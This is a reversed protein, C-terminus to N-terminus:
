SSSLRRRVWGEPVFAAAFILLQSVVFCALLWGVYAPVGYSHLGSERTSLLPEIVTPGFWALSVIVNAAVGLLMVARRRPRLSCFLVTAQWALVGLGGIERPDWGWFRGMNEQAWFGGLLVGMGTLALGGASLRLAIARLAENRRIDWGSIVRTLIAWVALAGVAFAATYGLTVTLVHAGLLLGAKGGLWQVSLLWALGIALSIYIGLIVRAPLWDFPRTPLKGFEIALQGPAGLRTLATDWAKEMALGSQVLRNMEERLHSELEDIAEARGGLAAAQAQRWERIHQELDFM